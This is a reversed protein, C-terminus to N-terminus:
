SDLISAIEIKLEVPCGVAHLDKESQSTMWVQVSEGIQMPKLVYKRRNWVTM